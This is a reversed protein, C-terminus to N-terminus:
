SSRASNSGSNTSGTVVVYLPASTYSSGGFLWPQDGELRQVDGLLDTGAIVGVLRGFPDVREGLRGFEREDVAVLVDRVGVVLRDRRQGRRLVGALAGSRDSRRRDGVRRRRESRSRPPRRYPGTSRRRRPPVEDGVDVRPERAESASQHGAVGSDGELVAARREREVRTMRVAELGSFPREMGENRCERSEVRVVPQRETHHAPVHLRLTVDLYERVDDVVSHVELRREIRGPPAVTLIAREADLVSQRVRRFESPDAVVHTDHRRHHEATTLDNPSPVAHRPRSRVEFLRCRSRSSLPSGRSASPTDTSQSRNHRSRHPDGQRRTHRTRLWFRRSTKSECFVASTHVATELWRTPWFGANGDDSRRLAYPSHRDRELLTGERDGLHDVPDGFESRHSSSVTQERVIRGDEGLEVLVNRDDVGALGRLEVAPFEVPEEIVADRVDDSRLSIEDGRHEFM